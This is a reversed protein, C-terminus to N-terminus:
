MPSSSSHSHGHPSDSTLSKAVKCLTSPATRIYRTYAASEWRGLTKFLSDHIGQQAATTAAGIRFCHGVYDKTVLGSKKLATRVAAVFGERTLFRKDKWKFLPGPTSGRVVMYSLVATVPCLCNETRGVYM